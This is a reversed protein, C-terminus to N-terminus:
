GRDALCPLVHRSNKWKPTCTEIRGWRFRALLSFYLRGYLALTRQGGRRGWRVFHSADQHLTRHETTPIEGTSSEILARLDERSLGRVEFSVREVEADFESWEALDGAAADFLGLLWRPADHHVDAGFEAAM